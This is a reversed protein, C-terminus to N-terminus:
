VVLPLSQCTCTLEEDGCLPPATEQSTFSSKKKLDDSFTGVTFKLIEIHKYRVVNLQKFNSLLLSHIVGLLGM